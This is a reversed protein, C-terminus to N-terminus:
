VRLIALFQREVKGDVFAKIHLIDERLWLWKQCHRSLCLV